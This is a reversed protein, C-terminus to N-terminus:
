TSLCAATSTRATSVARAGDSDSRAWSSRSRSREWTRLRVRGRPTRSTRRRRWPPRPCCRTRTRRRPGPRCLVHLARAASTSALPGPLVAHAAHSGPEVTVPPALLPLLRRARAGTRSFRGRMCPTFAHSGHTVAHTPGSTSHAAHRLSVYALPDGDRVRRRRIHAAGVHCGAQAQHRCGRRRGERGGEAALQLTLGHGISSRM